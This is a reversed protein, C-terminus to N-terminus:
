GSQVAQFYHIFSGNRNSQFGQGVLCFSHVIFVIIQNYVAVPYLNAGGSRVSNEVTRLGQQRHQFTFFRRVPQISHRHFIIGVKQIAPLHYVNGAVESGYVIQFLQHVNESRVFHIHKMEMKRIILCPTQFNRSQFFQGSYAAAASMGGVLATAEIRAIVATVVRIGCGYAVSIVGTLVKDTQQAISGFSMDANYRFYLRGSMGTRSDDGHFRTIILILVRIHFLCGFIQQTLRFISGAICGHLIIRVIHYIYGHGRSIAKHLFHNLFKRNHVPFGTYRQSCHMKATIFHRTAYPQTRWFTPRQHFLFSHRFRMVQCLM